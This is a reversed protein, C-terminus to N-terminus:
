GFLQHVFDKDQTIAAFARRGTVTGYWLKSFEPITAKVKMFHRLAKAKAGLFYELFGIRLETDPNLAYPEAKSKAERAVDNNGVSMAKYARDIYLYALNLDLLRRLELLPDDSDDVHICIPRDNNVNRGRHKGAVVISASQRGRADGGAKDAAKLATFLKESFEGTSSEFARGMEDIVEPGALLNGQVSWSKGERGGAWAPAQAGTFSAINGKADVVALQRTETEGSDDEDLLRRLTEHANAGQKLLELGRPGYAVNANAQTAVAGVNAEVWPVVSGVAFYHSAVAVGVEKTEPDFAVVSFTSIFSVNPGSTRM